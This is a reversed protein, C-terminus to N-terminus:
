MYSVYSIIYDELNLDFFESKESRVYDCKMYMRALSFRQSLCSSIKPSSFRIAPVVESHAACTALIVSDDCGSLLLSADRFEDHGIGVRTLSRKLTRRPGPPHWLTTLPVLRIFVDLYIGVASKTTSM